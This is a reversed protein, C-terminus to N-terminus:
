AQATLGARGRAGRRRDPRPQTHRHVARRRHHQGGPDPRLLRSAYDGLSATGTLVAYAAEASGAIIHPFQGLAVVYTALMIIFLKATSASPLLWVMLAILWGSFMAQLLMAGFGGALAHHALDALAPATEAPFPRGYALAAAFLWTGAINAAIVLGWLRLCKGASALDRRTLVPLVATLTSETFLQQRGLVVIVFGITYGFSAVLHRWPADPLGAQIQAEVLFSFGMSLGAALGSWLIQDAGRDLEEEGEERIIEHVVRAALPARSKAQAQEEDSLVEGQEQDEEDSM